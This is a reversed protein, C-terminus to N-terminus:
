QNVVLIGVSRDCSPLFVVSQREVDRWEGGVSVVLLLQAQADRTGIREHSQCEDHFLVDIGVLVILRLLYLFHVRYLAIEDVLVTDVLSLSDAIVLVCEGDVHIAHALVVGDVDRYAMVHFSLYERADAVDSQFHTPHLFLLFNPMM